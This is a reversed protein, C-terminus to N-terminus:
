AELQQRQSSFLVFRVSQQRQALGVEHLAVSCPYGGRGEGGGGEFAAQESVIHCASSISL